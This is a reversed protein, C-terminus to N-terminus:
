DLITGIKVDEAPLKGKYRPSKRIPGEAQCKGDVVAGEYVKGRRTTVRITGTRLWKDAEFKGKFYDGNARKVCGEGHLRGCLVEGEYLDGNKLTVSAYAPSLLDLVGNVFIGEYVNGNKLTMKGVGKILGKVINGEFRGETTAVDIAGNDLLKEMLELSAIDVLENTAGSRPMKVRFEGKYVNGSATVFEGKVTELTAFRAEINKPDFSMEVGPFRDFEEALARIPEGVYTDGNSLVVRIVHEPILYELSKYKTTAVAISGEIANGEHFKGSLAMSGSKLVGTGEYLGGGFEGEYITNLDAQIKHLTGQGNYLGGSFAGNYEEVTDNNKVYLQGQGEYLGKVFDGDYVRYEDRDVGDRYAEKGEKMVGRGHPYIEPVFVKIKKDKSPHEVEKVEGQMEIASGEYVCHYAIIKFSTYAGEDYVADVDLYDSRFEYKGSNENGEVIKMIGNAYEEKFGVCSLNFARGIFKKQLKSKDIFEMVQAFNLYIGDPAFSMFKMESEDDTMSFMAAYLDKREMPIEVAGIEVNDLQYEYVKGNDSTCIPNKVTLFGDKLTYESNNTLTRVTLVQKYIDYTADVTVDGEKSLVKITETTKDSSTVFSMSGWYAGKISYSGLRWSGLQAVDSGAEGGNNVVFHYDEGLADLKTQKYLKSELFVSKDINYYKFNKCFALTKAGNAGEEGEVKPLHVVDGQTHVSGDKYYTKFSEIKGKNDYSIAWRQAGDRGYYHETGYKTGDQRVTYKRKIITKDADYYEEHTTTKQASVGSVVCLASALFVFLRKMAINKSM